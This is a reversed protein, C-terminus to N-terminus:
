CFHSLKLYYFQIAYVSYSEENSNPKRLYQTDPNFDSVIYCNAEYPVFHPFEEARKNIVQSIDIVPNKEVFTRIKGLIIINESFVKRGDSLSMEGNENQILRELKKM